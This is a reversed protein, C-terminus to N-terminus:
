NCRDVIWKNRCCIFILNTYM